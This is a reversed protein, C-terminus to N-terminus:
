LLHTPPFHVMASNHELLYTETNHWIGSSIGKTRNIQELRFGAQVEVQQAGAAVAVGELHPPDEVAAADVDVAHVLLYHNTDILFM